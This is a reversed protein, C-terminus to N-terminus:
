QKRLVAKLSLKEKRGSYFVEAHGMVDWLVSLNIIYDCKLV